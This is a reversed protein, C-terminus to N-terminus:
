RREWRVRGLSAVIVAARDGRPGEILITTNGVASGDCRRPRGDPAFALGMAPWRVHIGRPPEWRHRVVLGDPDCAFVGELEAIGLPADVLVLTKPTGVSVASWRAHTVHRVLDQATDAAYTRNVIWGAVRWLGLGLLALVVLMEVVSLGLVSRSTQARMPAHECPRNPGGGCVCALLVADRDLGRVHMTRRCRMVGAKPIISCTVSTRTCCSLISM